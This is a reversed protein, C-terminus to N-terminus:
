NTASWTVGGDHTVFRHGQEDLITASDPGDAIVSVIDARTPVVLSAWHEGGDITRLVTGSKGGVWCASDNPASAALLDMLVGSPQSQWDGGAVWRLIRGQAGVAWATTRSPSLAEINGSGAPAAVNGGFVATNPSQRASQQEVTGAGGMRHLLAGASSLVTPAEVAAPEKSMAKAPESMTSFTQMEMSPTPAQIPAAPAIPQPVAEPVQAETKHHAHHHTLPPQAAIEMQKRPETKAEPAAAPGTNMVSMPSEAVQPAAASSAVEPAPPAPKSPAIEARSALAIQQPRNPESRLRLVIVLALAGAFAAAIPLIRRSRWWQAVPTEVAQVDDARAIAALISQCRPCEFLHSNVRARDSSTMSADYYAALIEPEPCDPLKPAPTKAMERKLASEFSDHDKPRQAM